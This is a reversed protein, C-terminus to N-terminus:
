AEVEPLLMAEPVEAMANRSSPKEYGLYAAALVDVPPTEVLERSYM